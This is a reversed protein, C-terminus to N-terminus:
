VIRGDYKKKRYYWRVLLLICTFYLVVYVMSMKFEIPVSMRAFTYICWLEIKLFILTLLGLIFSLHYSIFSTFATLFGLAMTLPIFELILINSILSIPSFMGFNIVLVPLTTLQAALTTLLNDRWSLFSADQESIRFLMMLAPRVYLIGLLALFSLQFGVDFVLIKPNLLVMMVGACLIINRMSHGRGMERAVLVLFGVIAARVVSAEAGTMIVFCVIILTAIVFAVRRSSFLLLISMVVYALITINYGSLAVLHTTGSQQMATKLEDRLTGRAGITLGSLFTAEEPPLVREYARVITHKVEYLTRQFTERRSVGEQTMSPYKMLGRVREKELYRAYGNEPPAIIIGTGSVEDGYTFRPYPKTTILVRVEPVRLMVQMTQVGEAVVPDSQVVGSFAIKEGFPIPLSRFQADDIRFYLSGVIVVCSLLALGWKRTPAMDMMAIIGIGVVVGMTIFFPALGMSAGFVGILFFTGGYFFIEYPTM